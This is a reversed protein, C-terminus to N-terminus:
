VTREVDLLFDRLLENFAAPSERFCAHGSAPIRECRGRWLTAYDVSDVYDLNVVPDNSGNVIALPGRLVAVLQRQNVGAGARLARFMTERARGDARALAARLAPTFTDGFIAHGFIDIEQPSLKEQSAFRMSPASRFAESMVTGVPPAGCIMLGRLEPMRAAIELAIHGGLSWGVLVPRDLDLSQMLEIIASSFGPRTYTLEPDAANDSEGHGPLDIALLRHGRLMPSNLQHEFVARCSSNGHIMVIPLPGEGAEEVAIAGHSTPIRRVDRKIPEIM